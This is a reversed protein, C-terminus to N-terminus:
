HLVQVPPGFKHLLEIAERPTRAVGAIAGLRNMQDMFNQQQDAVVGRASKVEIATFVALVRGILEPTVIVPTPGVLDSSGVCLGAHIPRANSLTVVGNRNSVLKGAWALAVNNRFLTSGAKATDLMIRRMEDTESM